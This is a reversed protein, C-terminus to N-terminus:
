RDETNEVFLEAHDVVQGDNMRIANEVDDQKADSRIWGTSGDCRVIASKKCVVMRTSEDVQKTVFGNFRFLDDLKTGQDLDQPKTWIVAEKEGSEVCLITNSSGDTMQGFTVKKGSEFVTGTADLGQILTKLKNDFGPSSFVDPMEAALAINHESNWPEDHRFKDYLEKAELYPLIAVRWSLLPKENSDIMNSPFRGHVSEFNLCALAVQRLNNESVQAADHKADSASGAEEDGFIDDHPIQEAVGAPVEDEEMAGYSPMDMGDTQKGMDGSDPSEGMGAMGAMGAMGPGGMGMGGSIGGMGMMGDGYGGDMGYGGNSQSTPWSLGQSENVIRTLELTVLQDKADIRTKLQKKLGDLRKQLQNIQAQNQKLYKDYENILENRIVAVLKKRQQDNKTATLKQKALDLTSPEYGVMGGMMGGM